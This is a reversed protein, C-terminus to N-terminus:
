LVRRCICAHPAPRLSSHRLSANPLHLCRGPPRLKAGPSSTPPPHLLYPIRHNVSSTPPRYSLPSLFYGSFFTSVPPDPPNSYFAYNAVSGLDLATGTWPQFVVVEYNPCVARVPPFFDCVYLVMNIKIQSRPYWELNESWSESVKDGFCIHSM